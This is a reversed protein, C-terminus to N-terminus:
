GSFKMEMNFHFSIETFPSSNEHRTNKMNSKCKFHTWYLNGNLVLKYNFTFIVLYLSLLTRFIFIKKVPSLYIGTVDNICAFIYLKELSLSLSPPPLVSTFLVNWWNEHILVISFDRTKSLLCNIISFPSHSFFHFSFFHLAYTQERPNQNEACHM